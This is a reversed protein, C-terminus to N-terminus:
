DVFKSNGNPNSLCTVSKWGSQRGQWPVHRRRHSRLMVLIRRHVKHQDRVGFSRFELILEFIDSFNGNGCSIFILLNMVILPLEPVNDGNVVWSCVMSSINFHTEIWDRGQQYEKDMGMIYLTDLGDVITAGLAGTGFISATHGRKTIPRLENKGWAHRVYNDWAHRMM